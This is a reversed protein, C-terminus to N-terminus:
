GWLHKVAQESCALRWYEVRGHDSRFPQATAITYVATRTYPNEPSGDLERDIEIIKDYRTPNVFHQLYFYTYEVNLVGPQFPTNKRALGQDSSTLVKYYVVVEEDWLYGEGACQPCFYDKDPEHTLDDVCDCKIRDENDDLRMRRLIGKQGKPIEAGYGFLIRRLEERLDIESRGSSTPYLSTTNSGPFNIDTPDPYLDSAM